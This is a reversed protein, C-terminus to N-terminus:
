STPINSNINDDHCDIDTVTSNTYHMEKRKKGRLDTTSLPM